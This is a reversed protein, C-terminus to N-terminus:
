RFMGKSLTTIMQPDSKTEASIGDSAILIVTYTKDPELSNVLITRDNSVSYSRKFDAQADTFICNLNKM